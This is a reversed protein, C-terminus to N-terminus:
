EWKMEAISEKLKRLEDKLKNNEKKIPALTKRMEELIFKRLNVVTNNVASIEISVGAIAMHNDETSQQLPTLLKTVNDLVEGGIEEAVNAVKDDLKNVTRTVNAAFTEELTPKKVARAAPKKKVANEKAAQEEIIRFPTVAKEIAENLFTKIDDPVCRPSYEEAEEDGSNVTDADQWVAFKNCGEFTEKCM